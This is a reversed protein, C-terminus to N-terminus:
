AIALGATDDYGQHASANAIALEQRRQQPTLYQDPAGNKGRVMILAEWNELGPFQRVGDVTDPTIPALAALLSNADHYRHPSDLNNGTYGPRTEYDLLWSGDIDLCVIRGTVPHWASLQQYFKNGVQQLTIHDYYMCSHLIMHIRISKQQKFM